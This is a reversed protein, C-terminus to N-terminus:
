GTVSHCSSVGESSQLGAQLRPTSLQEVSGGSLVIQGCTNHLERTWGPPRNTTLTLVGRVLSSGNTLNRDGALAMEPHEGDANLVVFYSLNSNALSEFVRIPRRKDAPCTLVLPTALENSMVQFYRFAEGSTAFEFPSGNTSPLQMPYLNNHDLAWTKFALGIQKLHCTCSIRQARERARFYAPVLLMALVFNVALIILLETLTFAGTRGDRHKTTMVSVQQLM